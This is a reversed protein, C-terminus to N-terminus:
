FSGESRHSANGLHSHTCKPPFSSHSTSTHTAVQSLVTRPATVGEKSSLARWSLPAYDPWGEGNQDCHNVMLHADSGLWALQFRERLTKWSWQSSRNGEGREMSTHPNLGSRWWTAFIRRCYSPIMLHNILECPWWPVSFFSSIDYSVWHQSKGWVDTTKKGLLLCICLFKLAMAKRKLSGWPRLQGGDMLRTM